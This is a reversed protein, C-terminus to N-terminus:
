VIFSSGMFTLGMVDLNTTLGDFQEHIGTGASSIKPETPVKPDPKWRSLWPFPGSAPFVPGRRPVFPALRHRVRLNRQFFLRLWPV